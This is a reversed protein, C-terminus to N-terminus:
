YITVGVGILGAVQAATVEVMVTVTLGNGATDSEREGAVIHEPEADVRVAVLEPPVNFTEIDPLLETECAIEADPVDVMVLLIVEGAPVIVAADAMVRVIFRVCEHAPSKVTVNILGLQPEDTINLLGPPM